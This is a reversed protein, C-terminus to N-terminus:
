NQWKTAFFWQLAFMLGVPRSVSDDLILKRGEEVAMDIVDILEGEEELGGGKGVRMADTVEAYFLTQQAGSTGM